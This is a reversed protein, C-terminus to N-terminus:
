PAGAASRRPSHPDMTIRADAFGALFEVAAESHAFVAEIEDGNDYRIRVEFRVLPAPADPAVYAGVVDCADAVAVCQVEAGHLPLISIHEITRLIAVSLEQVFREVKESQVTGLAAGLRDRDSQSLSAYRDVEAQM